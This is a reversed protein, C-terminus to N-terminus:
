PSAGAQREAGRRKLAKGGAVSVGRVYHWGQEFDLLHSNFLSGVINPVVIVLGVREVLGSGRFLLLHAIWMAWLVLAGVFGLQIAVAFTQNDPNNSRSAAATVLRRRLSDWDLTPILALLLLIGTASTSLPLSVAVAVALCDAIKTLQARDLRSAISLTSM